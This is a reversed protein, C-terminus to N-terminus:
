EKKSARGHDVESKEADKKLREIQNKLELIREERGMMIGNLEDLEKVTKELENQRQRTEDDIKKRIISYRISRLLTNWDLDGKLLYDQAGKRVAASAFSEDIFSGSLIIVPMGPERVALADYIEMGRGDPLHMDLIVVDAKWAALVELGAALSGAWKVDFNREPRDMLFDETMKAFGKDDEVILVKTIDM